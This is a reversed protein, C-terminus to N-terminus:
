DYESADRIQPWESPRQHKVRSDGLTFGCEPCYLHEKDRVSQTLIQGCVPCLLALIQRLSPTNSLM